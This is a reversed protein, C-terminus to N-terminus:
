DDGVLMGSVADDREVGAIGSRGLTWDTVLKPDVSVAVVVMVAGKADPEGEKVRGLLRGRRTAGVAFGLREPGRQVNVHAAVADAGAAIPALRAYESAFADILELDVVVARRTTVPTLKVDGRPGVM